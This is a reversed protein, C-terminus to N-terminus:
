NYKVVWLNEQTNFNWRELLLLFYTINSTIDPDSSNQFLRSQVTLLTYVMHIQIWNRKLWFQM